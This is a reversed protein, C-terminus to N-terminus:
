REQTAGLLRGQQPSCPGLAQCVSPQDEQGIVGHEEGQRVVVAGVGGKAVHSGQSFDIVCHEGDAQLRTGHILGEFSSSGIFLHSDVQLCLLYTAPGCLARLAPSTHEEGVGPRGPWSGALGIEVTPM